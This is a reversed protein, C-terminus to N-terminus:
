IRRRTLISHFTLVLCIAAIPLLHMSFKPEFNTPGGVWYPALLGLILLGMSVPVGRLWSPRIVMAAIAGVVGAIMVVGARDLCTISGALIQRYGRLSCAMDKCTLLDMNERYLLAPDGGFVLNRLAVAAVGAALISLYIGVPKWRARFEGYLTGWAQRASGGAPAMCFIVAAALVGLRDFRLWFALVAVLGAVAMPWPDAGSRAVLIIVAFLFLNATLEQMGLGVHTMFHPGFLLAIYAFQAVASTRAGLGGWRGIVGLAACTLLIAWLELISQALFSQGFMAHLAGAIYRYGPQYFFVPEGAAHWWDGEVWIERAFVQYTLFDSLDDYPFFKGTKDHWKWIFWPFILMGTFLTFSPRDGGKDNQGSPRVKLWHVYLVGAVLTSLGVPTWAGGGCDNVLIPWLGVGALGGAAAATLAQNRAADVETAMAWAWYAMAGAVMLPIIWMSAVSGSSLDVGALAFPAVAALIGAVLLAPSAEGRSRMYSLTWIGWWALLAAMGWDLFAAGIRAMWRRLSSSRASDEDMWVAGAEIADAMDGDPGVLAQALAYHRAVDLTFVFDGSIHSVGSPILRDPALPEEGVTSSIYEREGAGSTLVSITGKEAGVTIFALKQGPPVDVWAEVRAAIWHGGQHSERAERKFPYSILTFRSDRRWLWDVPFQSGELLPATIRASMGPNVLTDYTRKYEGRDAEVPTDFIKLGMGGVPAGMWLGLKIALLFFAAAAPLRLRFFRPGLIALAPIAVMLAVTEELTSLPLGDLLGFHPGPLVIAVVLSGIASAAIVAPSSAPAEEEREKVPGPRTNFFFFLGLAMIAILAEWIPPMARFTVSHLRAWSGDMTFITVEGGSSALQASSVSVKQTFFPDSIDEKGGGSGKPPRFEALIVEGASVRILPPQTEHTDAFAIEMVAGSSPAEMVIRKGEGGAWADLPGPLRDPVLPLVAKAHAASKGVWYTAPDDSPSYAPYRLPIVWAALVHIATLAAVIGSLHAKNL